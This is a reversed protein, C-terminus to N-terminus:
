RDTLSIYYLNIIALSIPSYYLSLCVSPCVLCVFHHIYLVMHTVCSSLSLSILLFPLPRPAASLCNFCHLCLLFSVYMLFQSTSVLPVLCTSLCLCVSLVLPVFSLPLITYLYMCLSLSTHSFSLPRYIVILVFHLCLFLLCMSISSLLSFPCPTYVSVCVSLCSLVSM